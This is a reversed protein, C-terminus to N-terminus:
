DAPKEGLYKVVVPENPKRNNSKSKKRAKVTVELNYTVRTSKVLNGSGTKAINNNENEEEVEDYTDAEVEFKYTGETNFVFEEYKTEEEGESLSKSPVIVEFTTVDQNGFLVPEWPDDQTERYNATTKKNSNAAIAREAECEDELNSLVTEIILSEGIFIEPNTLKAVLFSLDALYFTDCKSCSSQNQILAFVILIPLIFNKIRKM